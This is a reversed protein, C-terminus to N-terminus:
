KLVAAYAEENLVVKAGKAVWLEDVGHTVALAADGGIPSRKADVPEAM